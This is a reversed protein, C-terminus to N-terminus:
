PPIPEYEVIQVRAEIGEADRSCMLNNGNEALTGFRNDALSVVLLLFQDFVIIIQHVSHNRTKAESVPPNRRLRLPHKRFV